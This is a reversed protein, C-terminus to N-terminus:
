FPIEEDAPIHPRDVSRVEDLYRIKWTPHYPHEQSDEGDLVILLHAGHAGMITGIQTIKNGTYEVRRGIMAPVGYYQRIYDISM